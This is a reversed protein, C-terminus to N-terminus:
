AASTKSKKTELKALRADMEKIANVLIYPLASADLSLLETEQKDTEELKAKFKGVMYPFVKLVEQAILGVHKEKGAIGAKGNFKFSVPKLKKLLDLGEHFPAIDSKLREDSTAIWSGGAPKAANGNVVLLAGPTVPPNGISLVGSLINAKIVGAEFFSITKGATSNIIVNGFSDQSLAYSTTNALNRHSFYAAFADTFIAANGFRVTDAANATGTTNNLNVELKYTPGPSAIGIGVNGAPLNINAGVTSWQSGAGGLALDKWSTNDRFQFSTGNWRISGVTELSSNKITIGQNLTINGSGDANIGDDTKNVVSDIFDAFQAQTPKSGTLFFSKLNVRNQQAM